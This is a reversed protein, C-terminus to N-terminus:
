QEEPQTGSPLRWCPSVQRTQSAHMVPCSIDGRCRPRALVPYCLHKYLRTPDLAATVPAEPSLVEM